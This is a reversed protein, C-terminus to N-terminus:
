ILHDVKLKRKCNQSIAYWRLLNLSKQYVAKYALNTSALINFVYVHKARSDSNGACANGIGTTGTQRRM